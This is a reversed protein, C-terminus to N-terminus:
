RNNVGSNKVDILKALISVAIEEPTEANFPIGIPMDIRNIQEDTLHYIERFNIKAMEVKRKSGIMGLYSYDMKACQATIIEDYKHQPTAVVIYSNETSELRSCLQDFPGHFTQINKGSYQNIIEEREDLVTIRFGFRAALEALAGGVHGGGFIYLDALKNLPEIYVEMFGGCHMNLDDELDFRIKIPGSLNCFEKSREIVQFEIAGGGITGKSTKDEYIIMKAGAGRPTSGKTETVICLAAKLDGKAAQVVETFIKDM